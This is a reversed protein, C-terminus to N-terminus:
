YKVRQCSIQRMKLLVRTGQKCLVFFINMFKKIVRLIKKHKVIKMHLCM